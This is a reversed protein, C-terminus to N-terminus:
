SSLSIRLTRTKYINQTEGTEQSDSLSSGHVVYMCIFVCKDMLSYTRGSGGLIWIDSESVMLASLQVWPDSGQHCRLKNTMGPQTLCKRRAKIENTSIHASLTSMTPSFVTLLLLGHRIRDRGSSGASITVCLFPLFLVQKTLTYPPRALPLPSMRCAPKVSTWGCSYPPYQCTEDPLIRHFCVMNYNKAPVTLVLSTQFSTAPVPDPASTCDRPVYTLPVTWSSTSHLCTRSSLSLFLFWSGDPQSFPVWSQPQSMPCVQRNM